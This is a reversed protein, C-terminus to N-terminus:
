QAKKCWGYGKVNITSNAFTMGCAKSINEEDKEDSKKSDGWDYDSYVHEQRYKTIWCNFLETVNHNYKISSNFEHRLWYFPVLRRCNIM